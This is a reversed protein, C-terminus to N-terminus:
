PSAKSRHRRVEGHRRGRHADPMAYPDWERAAPRPKVKQGEKVLLKAGYVVPYRERERGSEDQVVLEGNRNM